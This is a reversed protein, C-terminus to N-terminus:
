QWTAENWNTSDWVGPVLSVSGVTVDVSKTTIASGSKATLTFTKTASVSVSKSGVTVPTVAGVGQDIELGTAGSVDWELTVNGAATLSSPTATFKTITPAGPPPPPTIGGTTTLSLTATRTRGDGQGTITVGKSTVLDASSAASITLTSPTGPSISNSSFSATVGNPLGSLFLIVPLNYGNAPTINVQVTSSAGRAVSLSPSSTNVTFDTPSCSGAMLAPAFLLLSLWWRKKM